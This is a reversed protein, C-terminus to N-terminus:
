AYKYVTKGKFVTELININQIQEAPITEIDSDLLLLEASKGVEISGTVNELHAQYAVNITHAQLAEKLTVCEEPMAAPLDIYKEYNADQRVYKRTMAVQIGDLGYASNVPYDSGYACIVGQDIFSQSPFARRVTEEGYLAVNAPDVAPQASFWGPQISAIIHNEGMRAKEEDKVFACHSILNRIKPNPYLKQANEYCDVLRRMTYSGFAHTNINFGEKQAQAMSDKMHEEDWLLPDRFSPEKGLAALAEDTYPDLMSPTGDAFFKVTDVIFLDEVDFKTRNAVAKALDAERTADNINHVGSVRATFEGNKAMESLVEYAPEIQQCDCVLTYGRAALVAFSEAICDHNQKATFEYDPIRDLFPRFVAPEQIFGSFSGDAERVIMGNHDDLDNTVGAIEMAKTNMLVVHGCYSTLVVPRDPVVADIDHRTFPRLIGQLNGSFWFRDWGLGKIVPDDPHAEAFAKVKEQIQKIVGEPTDKENDPVISGLNCTGYKMAAQANHLHGDGLGPIISKGNCDTVLTDAGIFKKAETNSGVFVFRGDKVAVAEARTETGDLAVSYVKANIFVRDAFQTM